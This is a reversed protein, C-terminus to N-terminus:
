IKQIILDANYEPSTAKIQPLIFNNLVTNWKNKDVVVDDFTKKIIKELKKQREKKKLNKYDKVSYLKFLAIKRKIDKWVKEIPQLQPSYTPLFCLEINLEEAKEYVIDTKHASFNDILLMIVGKPNKNRLNELFKVLTISKQNDVFELYDNSIPTLAYAGMAKCKFLTTDREIMPRITAWFRVNNPAFQFSSEDYSFIHFNENTKMNIINGTNIDYKLDYKKFIHMLRLHFSQKYYPSQRYDKPYPKAFHMKLKEKLIKALHAFSYSVGYKTKIEDAIEHLTWDNRKSMIKYVEEWEEDNLKSKRGQGSKRSLAGYGGNDWQNNWELLTEETVGIIKSIVNLPYKIKQFVFSLLKRYVFVDKENHLYEILTNLEKKDELSLNEMYESSPISEDNSKPNYDLYQNIDVKFQNILLNKVGTYSYKINWKDEIIKIIKSITLSKETKLIKELQKMQRKNLKTKRGSGEKREKSVFGEYGDEMWEDQIKYGYSKSIFSRESAEEVSYGLSRNALFLLKRYVKADKEKKMLKNIYDFNKENTIDNITAYM